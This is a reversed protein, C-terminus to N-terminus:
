DLPVDMSEFQDLQLNRFMSEVRPQQWGSCGPPWEFGVRGGSEKGINAIREFKDDV